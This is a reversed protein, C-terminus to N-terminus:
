EEIRWVPHNSDVRIHESFIQNIYKVKYENIEADTIIGRINKERLDDSSVIKEWIFERGEENNNKLKKDNAPIGGRRPNKIFNFTKIEIIKRFKSLIIKIKSM